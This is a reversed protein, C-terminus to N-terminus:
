QAGRSAKSAMLEEEIEANIRKGRLRVFIIELAIAIAFAGFSGWVYFARGDMYFFEAWNM